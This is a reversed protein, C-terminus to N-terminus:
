AARRRGIVVLGGAALAAVGSFLVAWAPTLHVVEGAEGPGPVLWGALSVLVPTAQSGVHVAVAAWVGGAYAAIGSLVAIVFVSPLYHPNMFLEGCHLLAATGIAGWVGLRTTLRPQMFGRYLLEHALPIALVLGVLLAVESVAGAEALAAETAPALKRPFLEFMRLVLDDLPLGVAAGAVVALLLAAGPPARDLGLAAATGQEPAYRVLAVFLAVLPGVVLAVVGTVPDFMAQRKLMQGLLGVTMFGSIAILALLVAGGVTLRDTKAPPTEAGM